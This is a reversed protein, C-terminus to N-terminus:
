AAAEFMENVYGKHEPTMYYGRGWITEIAIDFAELKKRLKCVFVDVIKIETEDGSAYKHQSVATHLMDKSCETHQMLVGLIIGEQGTLRFEMPARWGPPMFQEKLFDVEDRLRQNDSTLQDIVARDRDAQTLRENSQM